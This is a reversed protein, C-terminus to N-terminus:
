DIYTIIYIVDVIKKVVWLIQILLM